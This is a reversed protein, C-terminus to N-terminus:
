GSLNRGWSGFDMESRVPLTHFQVFQQEVTKEAQRQRRLCSASLRLPAFRGRRGSLGARVPCAFLIANQFTPNLGKRNVIALEIPFSLDPDVRRGTVVRFFSLGIM